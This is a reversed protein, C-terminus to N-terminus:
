WKECSPLIARFDSETLSGHDHVIKALSALVVPLDDEGIIHYEGAPDTQTENDVKKTSQTAEFSCGSHDAQDSVEANEPKNTPSVEKPSCDSGDAQDFAVANETQNTPPAEKSSDSGANAKTLPRSRVAAAAAKRLADQEAREDNHKKQHALLPGTGNSIDKHFINDDKCETCYFWGDVEKLTPEDFIKHITTWARSKQRPNQVKLHVYQGYDLRHQAKDADLKEDLSNQDETLFSIDKSM